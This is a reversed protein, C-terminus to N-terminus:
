NHNEFFRIGVVTFNFIGHSYNIIELPHKIRDFDTESVTIMVSLINVQFYNSQFDRNHRIM